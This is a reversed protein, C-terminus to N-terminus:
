SVVRVCCTSICCKAQSEERQCRYRFASQPPLTAPPPRCVAPLPRRRPGPPLHCATPCVRTTSLTVTNQHAKISRM